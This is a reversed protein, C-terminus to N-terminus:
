MNDPNPDALALSAFQRRSASASDSASRQDSQQDFRQYNCPIPEPMVPSNNGGPGEFCIRRVRGYDNTQPYLQYCWQGQKPLAKEPGFGLQACRMGAFFPNNRALPQSATTNDICGNPTVLAGVASFYYPRYSIYSSGNEPWHWWTNPNYSTKRLNQLPDTPYQENSPWLDAYAPNISNTVQQAVTANPGRPRSFPNTQGPRTSHFSNPRNFPNASNSANNANSLASVNASNM